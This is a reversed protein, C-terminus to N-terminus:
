AQVAAQLSRALVLAADIGDRSPLGRLYAAMEQGHRTLVLDNSRTTHHGVREPVAHEVYGAALLARLWYHGNSSSAVGLAQAYERVMPPVGRHEDMWRAYVLLAIDISLVAM